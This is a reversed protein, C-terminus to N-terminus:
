CIVQVSGTGARLSAPIVGAHDGDAQVPLGAPSLIEVGRVGEHFDIGRWSSVRGAAMAALYGAAALRGPKRLVLVAFRGNGLDNDPALVFPGGYCRGNLVIVGAAETETGDIRVRIRDFGYGALARVAAAVYAFRGTRRKLGPDVSAVVQADFGAGVTFVFRRDNISGTAITRTNGALIRQALQDVDGPLGLEHAVVNATGAPVIAVPLTNDPALGNVVEALTGDGGAVAIVDHDSQLGSAAIEEPKAPAPPRAFWWWAAARACRRM